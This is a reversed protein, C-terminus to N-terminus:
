VGVMQKVTVTGAGRVRWTESAESIRWGCDALPLSLQHAGVARAISDAVGKFGDPAARLLLKAQRAAVGMINPTCRSEGLLVLMGSDYAAISTAVCSPLTHAVYRHIHEMAHLLARLAVRLHQDTAGEVLPGFVFIADGLASVKVLVDSDSRASSAPTSEAAIRRQNVSGKPATEAAITRQVATTICREVAAHFTEVLLLSDSAHTCALRSFGDIRMAMVFVNPLMYVFNSVVQMRYLVRHAVFHPLTHFLIAAAVSLEDYLTRRVAAKKLTLEFGSRLSREAELPTFICMFSAFTFVAVTPTSIDKSNRMLTANAAANLISLAVAHSFRTSTAAIIGSHLFMLYATNRSLAAIDSTAVGSLTLSMLLLSILAALRCFQFPLMALWRECFRLLIALATCLAIGVAVLSISPQFASTSGFSTVVIMLAAFFVGFTSAIVLMNEAVYTREFEEYLLELADNTYRRPIVTGHIKSAQLLSELSAIDHSHRGDTDNSVSCSSPPLCGPPEVTVQRQQPGDIFPAAARQQEVAAVGHDHEVVPSEATNNETVSNSHTRSIDLASNLLSDTVNGGSAEAPSGFERSSM